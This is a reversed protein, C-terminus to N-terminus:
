ANQTSSKDMKTSALPSPVRWETHSSTSFIRAAKTCFAAENRAGPEELGNADPQATARRQPGPAEKNSRDQQSLGGGILKDSM